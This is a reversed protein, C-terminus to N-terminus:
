PKRATLVQSGALERVLPVREIWRGVREVLPILPRPVLPHLFDYPESAVQTFGAARLERRARFRTFAAEDPSVSTWHRPLLWFTAVIHPNLSNPEAFVLVGGPKLVRHLERFAAALHLHHLVSSGYVVDFLDDAFPLREADGCVLLASDRVVSRRRAQGLLTASLDFGVISAQSALAPELFVGTGCGLELGRLGPRAALQATFFETRRLARRQGTPSNWNWAAEANASIAEDHAIERALRDATHVPRPSM